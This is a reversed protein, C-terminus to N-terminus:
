SQRPEQPFMVMRFQPQWMQTSERTFFWMMLINLYFGFTARWANISSIAQTLAHRRLKGENTRRHILYFIWTEVVSILTEIISHIVLSTGTPGYCVTEDSGFYNLKLWCPGIYLLWLAICLLMARNYRTLRYADLKPQHAPPM